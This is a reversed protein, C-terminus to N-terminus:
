LFDALFDALSTHFSIVLEDVKVSVVVGQVLQTFLFFLRETVFLIQELNFLIEFERTSLILMVVIQELGLQRLKYLHCRPENIGQEM